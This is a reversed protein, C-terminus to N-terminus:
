GSVKLYLKLGKWRIRHTSHYDMVLCWIDIKHSPENIELFDACIFLCVVPPFWGAHRALTDFAGTAITGVWPQSPDASVSDRSVSSLITRIASRHLTRCYSRPDIATCTLALTCSMHSAKDVASTSEFVLNQATLAALSLNTPPQHPFNSVLFQMIECHLVKDSQGSAVAAVPLRVVAVCAINADQEGVVRSYLRGFGKAPKKDTDKASSM